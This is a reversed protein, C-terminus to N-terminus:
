FNMRFQRLRGAVKLPKMRGTGAPPDMKLGPSTKNSHNNFGRTSSFDTKAARKVQIRERSLVEM